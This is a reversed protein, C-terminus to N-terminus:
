ATEFIEAFRDRPREALGSGNDPRRPEAPPKVKPAAAPTAAAKPAGFIMRGIKPALEKIAVAERSRILRMAGEKDRANYLSTLKTVYAQDRSLHEEVAQALQQLALDKAEPRVAIYDKLEQTLLPTRFGELTRAFDDKFIRDEREQLQRERESIQTQPGSVGRQPAAQAYQQYSGSWEKLHKIADGFGKTDNYQLMLAMRDLFEPVGSQVIASHLMGAVTRSYGDPDRQNWELMAQQAFAPLHQPAAAAMEGILATDGSQIAQNIQNLQLSSEELSEIRQAIGERGGAESLWTKIGELDFDKLKDEIARKGFFISKAEKYAAPNAEKLARMWGPILRGDGETEAPAPEKAAQDAKQADAAEQSEGPPQDAHTDEAPTSIEEDPVDIVTEEPM